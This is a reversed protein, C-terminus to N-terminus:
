TKRRKEDTIDQKETDLHLKVIEIMRAFAVANNKINETKKIKRLAEAFRDFTNKDVVRVVDDQKFSISNEIDQILEDYKEEEGSCFLLIFQKFNGIHFNLSTYAIKEIESNLGTAIKQEIQRIENFLELLIIKDDKGVLSNHSIQKQIIEDRDKPTIVFIMIYELGAQKAASVRHHGSIIHYKNNKKDEETQYCLPISELRGDTKINNVLQQFVEPTFYRANKEQEVCDSPAVINIEPLGLEKTQKNLELLNKRLNEM